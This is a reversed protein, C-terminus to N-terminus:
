AGGVVPVLDGDADLIFLNDLSATLRVWKTSTTPTEGTVTSTARYSHGDPAAVVNPFAYTKAPDYPDATAAFGAAADRAANICTDTKAEVVERNQISTTAAEKAEQESQACNKESTLASDAAALLTEPNLVNPDDPASVPLKVCRTLEDKLQQCIRTLKDNSKEIEKTDIADLNSWSKDQSIPVDSYITLTEGAPMPEGNVPFTIAGNGQDDWVVSFDTGKNLPVDVFGSGPIPRRLVANIAGDAVSKFTAPFEQAVGNGEYRVRTATAQVTM